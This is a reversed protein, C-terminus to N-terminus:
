YTLKDWVQLVFKVNSIIQYLRGIGSDEFTDMICIFMEVLSIGECAYYMEIM